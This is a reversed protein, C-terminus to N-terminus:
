LPIMAVTVVGTASTLAGTFDVALADGAALRSNAPTASLALNQNTNVTGKLNATSAHVVTGSAIATGSPVKRIEATVAGADTGAVTPRVTVGVVRMARTAVFFTKDISTAVYEASAYIFAGTDLDNGQIGMSGDDFQILNVGM